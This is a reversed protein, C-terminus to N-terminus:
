DPTTDTDFVPSSPLADDISGLVLSASADLSHAALAADSAGAAGSGPGASASGGAPAGSGAPSGDAPSPSPPAPAGVTTVTGLPDADAPNAPMGGGPPDRPALAASADAPAASRDAPGAPAAPVIAVPGDPLVGLDPLPPLVGGPPLPGLDGVVADLADDALDVVPGLLGGLTDDGLVPGLVPLAAAIDDLAGVAPDAITGGPASGALDGVTSAIQSVTGSLTADAADFTGSAADTAEDVVVPVADVAPQAPAPAIAEVVEVVEAAPAPVIDAVPEVVEGVASDLTGDVVGVVSGVTGLLGNPQEEASAGSPSAVLSVVIWAAALGTGLLAARLVPVRREAVAVRM